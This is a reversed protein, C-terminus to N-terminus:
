HLTPDDGRAIAVAPEREAFLNLVAFRLYEVIEMLSRDADEETEDDGVRARALEAIDELAERGEASWQGDGEVVHAVGALFGRCWGATAATRAEVAVDDRPLLPYFGLEEDALAAGTAAYLEMVLDALEGHVELDLAVTMAHLGYDSEQVAGGALLGSLCGHIEAPSVEAGQEFLQDAFEDFDFVAASEPDDVM